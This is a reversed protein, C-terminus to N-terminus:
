ADLATVADDMSVSSRSFSPLFSGHVHQEAAAAPSSTTEIARL